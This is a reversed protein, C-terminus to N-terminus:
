SSTQLVAETYGDIIKSTGSSPKSNAEVGFLKDFTENELRLDLTLTSQRFGAYKGEQRDM